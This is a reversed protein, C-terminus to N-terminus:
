FRSDEPLLAQNANCLDREITRPVRPTPLPTSAGSVGDVVCVTGFASNM